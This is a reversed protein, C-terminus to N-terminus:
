LAQVSIKGLSKKYLNQVYVQHDQHLSCLYQEPIEYLRPTQVSIKRKSKECLAETPIEKLCRTCIARCLWLSRACCSRCLVQWPSRAGSRKCVDECLSSASDLRTDGYRKKMNRAVSNPTEQRSLKSMWMRAQSISWGVLWIWIKAHDIWKKCTFYPSIRCFDSCSKMGDALGWRHLTQQVIVVEHPTQQLHVWPQRLCCCPPTPSLLPTPSRDISQWLLPLSLSLDM